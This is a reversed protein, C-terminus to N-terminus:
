MWAGDYDVIGTHGIGGPAGRAVVYGPQPYTNVPLLIWGPINAVQTGAWQNAIPYYKSFPNRGNIKPVIAGGNTAKHGVFLNCKYEKKGVNENAVAFAYAVSGLNAKAQNRVNIQWQEDVVGFCENEDKKKASHPDDKARKLFFDQGDVTAKVEYIGADEPQATFTHGQGDEYATWGSYTGDWKLIKWHWQIKDELLLPADPLGPSLRYRVTDTKKVILGDEPATTEGEKVVKIDVPLLIAELPGAVNGAEPTKQHTHSTFLGPRNDVIWNGGGIAFFEAVGANRTAQYSPFTAESPQNDIQAEWCFWPKGPADRTGTHRITVKYKVGKKLKITRTGPSGIGPTTIKETKGGSGSIPQITMEWSAYDGYVQFPVDVLTFADIQGADSADSPNAGNAYEIGDTFGDGDTDPNNPDTGALYEDLDSLGDNDSDLAASAVLPNLGHLVEWGDPIRDGDTDFDELNTGLAIEQANTLGDADPDQSADASNEWDLKRQFEYRQNQSSWEFSGTQAEWFDPMGDGDRDATLEASNAITPHFGLVYEYQNQIGDGDSDGTRGNVGDYGYVWSGNVQIQNAAVLGHQVEWGDPMFDDDSDPDFPATSNQYEALNTLGDDDPDESSDDNLLDLGNHYEWGDPMPDTDSNEAFNPNKGFTYEELNTYGDNDLDLSADAPNNPNLGNATEWEDPIRDRDSDAIVEVTRPASATISGSIDVLHATILHTGPPLNYESLDYTSTTDEGFKNAGHYFEVKAIGDPDSASAAFYIYDGQFVTHGETPSTLAITGPSDEVELRATVPIPATGPSDHSIEVEAPYVGPSLTLSRFLGNLTLVSHAPVSGAPQSFTLFDFDPRIELSMGSQLYPANYIAEIGEDKALNQIGVTCENVTGNLTQYRFQIRGDAFLVAQFTLTGTQGLRTVNQFQVIFRDSEQKYYIDGSSHTDLDDWFPAIINPPAASGPLSPLFTNGYSTSGAGFSLLGNSSVFVQSYNQGYFPFSFGTFPAPESADDAASIVALRTGTASIDEWSYAIDGSLSDAYSYGPLTAGSVTVSYIVATDTDNSLILPKAESQMRPMKAALIPPFAAFQGANALEWDDPLGNGNADVGITTPDTGIALEQANTLGDNDPDGSSTQDLNTFHQLEWADPLGDGDSDLGEFRLSFVAKLQGINAIAKNADDTTEATWPFISNPHNTGNLIREAELWAPAAAHLRTYFPDAIAKLQGLLLPAKQKEIWEPTKPSPVTLLDPHSIALDARVQTAITPAQTDLAQLAAAVMNKAQGINAPGKNNEAVGTVVPPNGESWWLPPAALSIMALLILIGPILNRKPLPM